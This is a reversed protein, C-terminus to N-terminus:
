TSEAALQDGANIADIAKWADQVSMGHSFARFHMQMCQAHHFLLLQRNPWKEEGGRFFSWPVVKGHYSKQVRRSPTFYHVVMGDDQLSFTPMRAEQGHSDESVRPFFAWEGNDHAKHLVPALTLGMWPYYLFPSYDVGLM